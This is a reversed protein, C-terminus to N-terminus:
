ASTLGPAVANEISRALVRRVEDEGRISATILQSSFRSDPTDDLQAALQGIPDAVLGDAGRGLDLPLLVRLRDDLSPADVVGDVSAQTVTLVRCTRTMERTAASSLPPGVLIATVVVQWQAVDLAMTLAELRQRARTGGDAKAEDADILVVLDSGREVSGNLVAPFNFTVSAVKFRGPVREYGANALRNAVAEVAGASSM